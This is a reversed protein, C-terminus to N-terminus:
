ERNLLTIETTSSDNVPSVQDERIKVTMETTATMEATMEATVVTEAQLQHRHRYPQQMKMPKHNLLRV